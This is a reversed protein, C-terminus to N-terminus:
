LCLLIWQRYAWKLLIFYSSCILFMYKYIELKYLILTELSFFHSTSMFCKKNETSLSSIGRIDKWSVSLSCEYGSRRTVWIFSLSWGGEKNSMHCHIIRYERDKNILVKIIIKNISFVQKNTNNYECPNKSIVVSIISLM